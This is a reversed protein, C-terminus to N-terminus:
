PKIDEWCIFVQDTTMAYVEKHIADSPQREAYMHEVARDCQVRDRFSMLFFYEHDRDDDTDMITNRQRRGVAGTEHLLGMALMHASFRELSERFADITEDPKLNFCTLMHFM